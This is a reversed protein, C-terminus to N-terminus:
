GSKKDSKQRLSQNKKPLDEKQDSSPPKSSNNSDKKIQDELQNELKEIRVLCLSLKEELESVRVRLFANEKELFHARERWIDAPTKTRSSAM